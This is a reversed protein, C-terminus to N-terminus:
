LMQFFNDIPVATVWMLCRFMLGAVVVAALAVIGAPMMFDAKRSAVLLCAGAVLDGLFCIIGLADIGSSMVCLLALLAGAFGAVAGFLAYPERAETGALCLFAAIGLPAATGLYGLPLAITNWAPHSSMMYSAGASFSLAVGFAAALIIFAKRAGDSASRKLLILYVIACAASLGVLVAETFIGSTPHGLAALMNEPHSLHTVSAIGGAAMIVIGCLAVKFAKTPVKKIFEDVALCAFMWGACGTLLTFIVLSWQIAM